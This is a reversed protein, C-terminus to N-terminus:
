SPKDGPTKLCFRGERICDTDVYVLMKEETQKYKGRSGQDGKEKVSLQRMWETKTSKSLWVLCFATVTLFVTQFSIVDTELARFRNHTKMVAAICKESERLKYTQMRMNQSVDKLLCFHEWNFTLIAKNKKKSTNNVRQKLALFWDFYVLTISLHIIERNTVPMIWTRLDTTCFM